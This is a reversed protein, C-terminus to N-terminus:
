IVIMATAAAPGDNSQSATSTAAIAYRRRGMPLVATTHALALRHTRSSM